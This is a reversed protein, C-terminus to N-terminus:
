QGKLLYLAAAAAALGAPLALASFQDGEDSAAPHSLPDEEYGPSHEPIGRARLPLGNKRKGLSM